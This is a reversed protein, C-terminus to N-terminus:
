EKRIIPQYDMTKFPRPVHVKKEYGDFEGEFQTSSHKLEKPSDTRLQNKPRLLDTHKEGQLERKLVSRVLESVSLLVM